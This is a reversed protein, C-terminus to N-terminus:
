PTHIGESRRTGFIAYNEDLALARGDPMRGQGQGLLETKYGLITLAANVSKEFARAISTGSRKAAEVLREEHRAMAPLIDIIPPIYSEPLRDPEALVLQNVPPKALSPEAGRQEVKVRDYPNGGKFWFVHEVDYLSFPRKGNESFLTILVEHVQKFKLYDEAIDGSPQWINLDTMTQVANTYYVPWVERGQIQWFYSLFFPISGVKPIGHRTKGSAVWKEGLRNIYALFTKIRSAAAQEDPPVALASKLEHDCKKPSDAAKVVMNFFMQGKIGQFGWLANRKNIGDVRSKFDALAINGAFYGALLPKLENEILKARKEDCEVEAEVPTKGERGRPASLYENMVELARKFQQDNLLNM